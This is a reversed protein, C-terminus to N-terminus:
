LFPCALNVSGGPIGLGKILSTVGTLSDSFTSKLGVKDTRIM